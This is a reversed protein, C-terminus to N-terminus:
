RFWHQSIMLPTRHCEYSLLKVFTSMFRIWTNLSWVKLIVVTGCWGPALSNIFHYRYTDGPKRINTNNKRNQTYKKYQKSGQNPRCPTQTMKSWPILGMNKHRYGNLDMPMSNEPWGGTWGDMTSWGYCQKYLKSIYTRTLAPLDYHEHSWIQWSKLHLSFICVKYRWNANSIKLISSLM